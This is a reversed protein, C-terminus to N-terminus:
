DVQAPSAVTPAGRLGWSSRALWVGTWVLVIMVGATVLFTPTRGLAEYSAGAAVATVGGTLTQVGGMLGQASALRNPPATMAVAASGGTVTMGDVVGHILGVGLMVIPFPLVGYLVMFVAGVTLGTSAARFPGIRQTFRGGIPGLVILPLAFFTIGLSGAWSPADLDAMVLTWLSDFTGIMVFLSVGMVVAGLIARVGLLDFALRQPPAHGRDVEVIDIRSVAVILGGVLLAIIIFPAGIGLWGVTVASLVPGLAFGAVDASLVRGLNSGMNDPDSLIIIRRAAPYIIGGGLGLVIRGALLTTFSDGFAMLVNGAVELVMGGLIMAGARGRDAWSSIFVQAFFSMFFGSSVIIGLGAAGIGFVDRFDDLVTFMTGYAMAGLATVCQLLVVTRRNM